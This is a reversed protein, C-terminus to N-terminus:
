SQEKSTPGFEEILLDAARNMWKAAEEPVDKSLDRLRNVLRVPLRRRPRMEKRIRADHEALWRDFIEGAIQRQTQAGHIPDHYEAEGGDYIFGERIRADDWVNETM